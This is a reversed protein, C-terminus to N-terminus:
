LYLYILDAKKYKHYIEVSEKWDKTVDCGMAGCAQGGGKWELGEKKKRKEKM